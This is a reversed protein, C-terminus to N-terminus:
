NLVAYQALQKLLVTEKENAKPILVEDEIFEHVMIDERFAKFLNSIANWIFDYRNQKAVITNIQDILTNLQDHHEQDHTHAADLNNQAIIAYCESMSLAATKLQHDLFSVYALTHNEEWAM